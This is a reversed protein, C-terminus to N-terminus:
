CSPRRSRSRASRRSARGRRHDARGGRGRGPRPDAAHRGPLPTIGPAPEYPREMEFQDRRASGARSRRSSRRPSACTSTASARGPRRQPVQLHLRRRLPHRERETSRCRAPRTASTGSSRPRKDFAEIDALAGSRYAVHSLVVCATPSRTPQPGLLPDAGRLDDCSWAAPAPSARSCTATPRSTTRTPSSRAHAVPRRRPDRQRAQLPQGHRLRDVLVQGPEAGIVEALADGTRTRRRSGTTGAASWSPRGVPRRRPAPARAHGQAAPRALQRRPLAPARRRDRVPRPVVALPDDADLRQADERTVAMRAGGELAPQGPRPPRLPGRRARRDADRRSAAAFRERSRWRCSTTSAATPSCRPFASRSASSRRPSARRSGASSATSSATPSTAARRRAALDLVGAQSVVGTVAVRPNERTAAWAALHGGASHGITVVRRPRRPLEALLDIAASVDELTEPVGGGNGLRRYEINWAAWGRAALDECLADMLTLGYEAKWFGGHILVAVPGEGYLVGYQSPDDGYSHRQSVLALPARRRAQTIGEDIQEPTVGSYALRLTNQGGELLFDTGKVFLVEREAAAKELEAVDVGEPLEVWM